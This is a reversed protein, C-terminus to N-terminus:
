ARKVSILTKHVGQDLENLTGVGQVFHLIKGASIDEFDGSILHHGLHRYRLTALAECDRFIHSAM